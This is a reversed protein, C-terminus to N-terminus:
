MPMTEYVRVATGDMQLIPCGKALAVADDMSAAKVITYGTAPWNEITSVGSKEVAQGDEAFPNGADVINEGLSSFWDGWAKAAEERPIDTGGKSVGYYIFVYNKM